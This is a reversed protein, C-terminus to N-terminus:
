KMDLTTGIGRLWVRLLYGLYSWTKEGVSDCGQDLGGTDRVQIKTFVELSRRSQSGAYNLQINLTFRECYLFVKDSKQEFNWRM